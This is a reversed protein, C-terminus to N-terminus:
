SKCDTLVRKMASESGEINFEPEVSDSLDWTYGRMVLRSGRMIKLAFDKAQLFDFNAAYRQEYHWKEETVRGQDFRYKMARLNKDVGGLYIPSLLMAYISKKGVEDCRIVLLFKGEVSQLSAVFRVEDTLKDIVTMYKWNGIRETGPSPLHPPEISPQNPELSNTFGSEKLGEIGIGQSREGSNNAAEVQSLEPVKQSPTISTPPTSLTPKTENPLATVTPDASIEKGSPPLRDHDIGPKNPLLLRATVRKTPEQVIAAQSHTASQNAPEAESLELKTLPPVMANPPTSLSSKSKNPLAAVTPDPSFKQGTWLLTKSCPEFGAKDCASGHLALVLAPRGNLEAFKISQIVDDFAKVFKAESLSTFIQTLCGGSGCYDSGRNQGCIFAGFDLIFDDIGDGNIDRRTIFNRNLEVKQGCSKTADNISSQIEPPLAAVHADSTATTISPKTSPAMAQQKSEDPALCCNIWPREVPGRFAWGKNGTIRNQVYWWGDPQRQLVILRTGNPMKEIRAGIRVSPDTRLALYDDPARTNAVFHDDLGLASPGGTSSSTPIPNKAIQQALGIVGTPIETKAGQALVLSRNLFCSSILMLLLCISRAATKSNIFRMAKGRLIFMSWAGVAAFCRHRYPNVHNLAVPSRPM